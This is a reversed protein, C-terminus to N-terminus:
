VGSLGELAERMGPQLELARNFATRAQAKKNQRLWGHGLGVQAQARETASAADASMQAVREFEVLARGVDGLQLCVRGMGLLADVDDPHAALATRFHTRAEEHRGVRELLAAARGSAAPVADRAGTRRLRDVVRLQLEVAEDFAGARTKLLAVAALAEADHPLAAVAADLLPAARDDEGLEVLLTGLRLAVAARDPHDAPLADHWHRLAERLAEHSGRSAFLECLRAHAEFRRPESQILRQLTSIAKPEQGLQDYLQWLRTLLRTKRAPDDVDRLVKELGTAATEPDDSQAAMLGRLSAAEKDGSVAQELASVWREADDHHDVSMRALKRLLLLREPRPLPGELRRAAIDRFGPWDGADECAELLEVSLADNDPADAHARALAARAGGHDGLEGLQTALKRLVVVRSPGSDMADARRQLLSVLERPGNASKELFVFAEDISADEAFAVAYLRGAGERDKLPGARLRAAECLARLRDPGEVRGALAELADARAETQNTNALLEALTEYPTPDDELMNGLANYAEVAVSLRGRAAALGAIENLHAVREGGEEFKPLRERRLALLEDWRGGAEYIHDLAAWADENDPEVRCLSRLVAERGAHDPAREALFADARRAVDRQAADSLGMSLALGAARAVEDPDDSALAAGLLADASATDRAVAAARTAAKKAETPKRLPGSLLAALERLDAASQKDGRLKVRRDLVGALGAHDERARYAKVLMDLADRALSPQESLREVWASAAEDTPDAELQSRLHVLAARPRGISEVLLEALELRLAGVDDGGAMVARDLDAALRGPDGAARRMALVADRVDRDSPDADWLRAWTDAARAPDDLDDAAVGAALGCLVRAVDRDLDERPAVVEAIDLWADARDAKRAADLLLEMLEVFGDEQAVAVAAELADGLRSADDAAAGALAKAVRMRDADGAVALAARELSQAATAADRSRLAATLGDLAALAFGPDDARQAIADLLDPDDGVHRVLTAAVAADAAEAGDVHRSLAVCCAALASHADSESGIRAVLADLRAREDPQQLLARASWDLALGPDALPGDAHAILRDLGAIQADDDLEALLQLHVSAWRQPESAPDLVSAAGRLLALEQEAPLVAPADLLQVFIAADEPGFGDPRAAALAAFAGAKDGSQLLQAVRRELLKASRSADGDGAAELRELTEFVGSTDGARERAALAQLLRERRTADDKAAAAEAELTEALLDDQGTQALLAYLRTGREETPVNDQALKLWGAALEADGAQEAEQAAAELLRARVTAEAAGEVATLYAEYLEERREAGLADRLATWRADDSPQGLALARLAMTPDDALAAQRERLAIQRDATAVGAARELLMTAAAPALATVAADFTAEDALLADDDSTAAWREAAEAARAAGLQLASRAWGAASGREGALTALRAADLYGAEAREGDARSAENALLAAADLALGGGEAIPVAIAVLDARASADDTREIEACIAAFAADARGAQALQDVLALVRTTRTEADPANAVGAELHAILRDADGAAELLSGRLVFADAAVASDVSENSADLLADLLALAESEAGRGIAREILRMRMADRRAPAAGRAIEAVVADTEAAEGAADGLRLVAELAEDDDPTASLQTTWLGLATTADGLRSEALRAAQRRAAPGADGGAESAAIHAAVLEEWREGQELTELWVARAAPNDGAAGALAEALTADDIGAREATDRLLALLGDDEPTAALADRLAAFGEATDGRLTALERLKDARARGECAAAARVLVAERAQLDGRAAFLMDLTELQGADAAEVRDAASAAAEDDTPDLALVELWAALAEPADHQAGAFERLTAVRTEIHAEDDDLLALRERLAAVLAQEDRGRLADLRAAWLVDSTPLDATARRLADAAAAADGREERHAEALELWRMTREDEDETANAMRELASCLADADRAERWIVTLARLATRRAEDQPGSGEILTEYARAAEDLRGAAHAREGLRALLGARHEPDRAAVGDADEDSVGALSALLADLRHALGRRQALADARAWLADDSVKLRLAEHLAAFAREGDALQQDALEAIDLLQQVRAERETAPPSVELARALEDHRGHARAVPAVLAAIAEAEEPIELRASVIALVAEGEADLRDAAALLRMPTAAAQVVIAGTDGNPLEIRELFARCALTADQLEAALMADLAAAHAVRDDGARRADVLGIWAESANPRLALVAEWLAGARVADGLSGAALTAARVLLDAREEGETAAAQAQLAAVAEGWDRAETALREVLQWDALTAEGEGLHLTLAALVTDCGEASGLALSAAADLLARGAARADGQARQSALEALEQVCAAAMGAREASEVVRLAAGADGDALEAHLLAMAAAYGAEDDGTQEALALREALADRRVAGDAHECLAALAFLRGDDDEAAAALAAALQASETIRASDESALARAVGAAALDAARRPDASVRAAFALLEAAGADSAAGAEAEIQDAVAERSQGAREAAQVASDADRRAIASRLDAESLIAADPRAERLADMDTRLADDESGLALRTRVLAELLDAREDDTVSAKGAALVEVADSTDGAQELLLGLRLRRPLASPRAQVARRLLDVADAGLEADAAADAAECLHDVADEGTAGAEARLAAQVRTAGGVTRAYALWAAVADADADADAAIAGAAVAAADADPRENLHLGLLERAAASSEAGPELGSLRQLLLAALEDWQRAARLAGAVEQGVDSREPAVAALRHLAQLRASPDPLEGDDGLLRCLEDLAEAAAGADGRAEALAARRELLDALLVADGSEREHAALRALAEDHDPALTLVRHWAEAAREPSAMPGEALRAMELAAALAREVGNTQVNDVRQGLLVFLREWEQNDRYRQEFHDLAERNDPDLTRVRRLMRDAREADGKAAAIRALGLAAVAEAQRDRARVAEGRLLELAPEAEEEGAQARAALSRARLTLDDPLAESLADLAVILAEPAERDVNPLNALEDATRLRIHMPQETALAAALARALLTPQGAARAAEAWLAAIREPDAGAEAADALVVATDEPPEDGIVLMEAYDVLADAIAGEGAEGLAIRLSRLAEERAEHQSAAVERLEAATAAMTEDLGSSLQGLAAEARHGHGLEVHRRAAELWAYDRTEAPSLAAVADVVDAMRGFRGLSADADALEILRAGTASQPAHRFSERLLLSARERDEGVVLAAARELLAARARPHPERGALGVLADAVRARTGPDTASGHQELIAHVAGADPLQIGDQDYPQLDSM